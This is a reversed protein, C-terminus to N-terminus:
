ATDYGGLEMFDCAGNMNGEELFFLIVFSTNLLPLLGLVGM